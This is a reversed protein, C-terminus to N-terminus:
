DQNYGRDYIDMGKKTERSRWLLKQYLSLQEKLQKHTILGNRYKSPTNIIHLLEEDSLSAIFPPETRFEENWNIMSHYSNAQWKLKPIQDTRISKNVNIPLEDFQEEDKEDEDTTLLIGSNVDIDNQNDQQCTIPEVVDIEKNLRLMKIMRVIDRRIVKSEDSCMALAVQDTHAFYPNRQIVKKAIVKETLYSEESTTMFTNKSGHIFLPNCKITFWM